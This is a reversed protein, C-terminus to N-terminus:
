EEGDLYGGLVRGTNIEVAVARDDWLSIMGYDKINTIVLVRDLHEVCWDQVAPLGVTLWDRDGVRATVIRVEQGASLWKRVRAVMAPIPKGIYAMGEWGKYEALTGDLDVGIWGRSM